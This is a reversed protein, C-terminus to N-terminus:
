NLAALDARFHPARHQALLGIRRPRSRYPQRVEVEAEV